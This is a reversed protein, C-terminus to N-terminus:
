DFDLYAGIYAETQREQHRQTCYAIRVGRDVTYAQSSVALVDTAAALYPIRTSHADSVALLMTLGM